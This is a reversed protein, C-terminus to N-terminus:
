ASRLHNGSLFPIAEPNVIAPNPDPAKTKAGKDDIRM